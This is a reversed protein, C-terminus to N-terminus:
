MWWGMRSRQESLTAALSKAVSWTRQPTHKDFGARYREAVIKGDSRDGGGHDRVRAM